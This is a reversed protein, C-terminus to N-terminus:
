HQSSVDQFFQPKRPFWLWILFSQIQTQTGGCRKFCGASVNNEVVIKYKVHHWSKLHGLVKKWYIKTAYTIHLTVDYLLNQHSHASLVYNSLGRSTEMRFIMKKLRIKQTLLSNRSLWKSECKFILSLTISCSSVCLQTDRFLSWDLFTGKFNPIPGWPEGKFYHKRFWM